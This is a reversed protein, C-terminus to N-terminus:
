YQIEIKEAKKHYCAIEEQQQKKNNFHANLIIARVVVKVTLKTNNSKQMLQCVKVFHGM